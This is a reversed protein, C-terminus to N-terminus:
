WVIENFLKEIVNGFKYMCIKLLKGFEPVADIKKHEYKQMKVSALHKLSAWLCCCQIAM